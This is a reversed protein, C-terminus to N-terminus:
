PAEPPVLRVPSVGDDEDTDPFEGAFADAGGPGLYRLSARIEESVQTWLCAFTPHIEETAFGASAHQCAPCVLLEVRVPTRASSTGMAAVALDGARTGHADAAEAARWAAALAARVAAPIQCGAAYATLLLWGEPIPPPEDPERALGRKAAEVPAHETGCVDCVYTYRTAM